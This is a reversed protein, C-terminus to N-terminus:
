SSRAAGSAHRGEGPHQMLDLDGLLARPGPSRRVPRRERVVVGQAGAAQALERRRARRSGLFHQKEVSFASSSRVM